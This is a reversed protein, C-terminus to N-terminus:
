KRAIKNTLIRWVKHYNVLTFSERRSGGNVPFRYKRDNEIFLPLRAHEAMPKLEYIFWDRITDRGISKVMEGYTADGHMSDRVKEVLHRFEAMGGEDYTFFIRETCLSFLVDVGNNAKLYDKVVLAKQLSALQEAFDKAFKQRRREDVDTSDQRTLNARQRLSTRSLAWLWLAGDRTYPVVHRGKDNHVPQTDYEDSITFFMRQPDKENVRGKLQCEIVHKANNFTAYHKESLLNRDYPVGNVESDYEADALLMQELVDASPWGHEALIINQWIEAFAVDDDYHYAYPNNGGPLDVFYSDHEGFRVNGGSLRTIRKLLPWFKKNFADRGDPLSYITFSQELHDSPSVASKNSQEAANLM